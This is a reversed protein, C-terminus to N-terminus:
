IGDATQNESKAKEVPVIWQDVDIIESARIEAQFRTGQADTVPMQITKSTGPDTVDQYLTTRFARDVMAAIVERHSTWSRWIHQAFM